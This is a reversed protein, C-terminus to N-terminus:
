TPKYADIEAETWITSFFQETNKKDEVYGHPVDRSTIRIM